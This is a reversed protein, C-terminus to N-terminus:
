RPNVGGALEEAIRNIIEVPLKRILDPTAPLELVPQDDADSTADYVHWDKVLSSLVRYMETEAQAPNLPNGAADVPIDAPRLTDPALTKPNRITVWLDDGLQPFQITIFRNAYGPM